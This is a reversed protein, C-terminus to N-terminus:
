RLRWAQTKKRLQYTLLSHVVKVAVSTAVIVVAMAAAAATSGAEDM